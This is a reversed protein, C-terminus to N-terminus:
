PIKTATELGAGVSVQMCQVGPDGTARIVKERLVAEPVDVATILLVSPGAGSLAVGYVGNSGALPLLKPLLPCAEERYPQHLRDRMAAQLLDARGLAFASVLLGTAQINAVADSRRYHDPLLARATVTALSEGPLALFFKWPLGAGAFTAASVVGDEMASVTFGGLLCAAVNDPHGERLCAQELVQQRTLGLEGFHDALLVGALLAAASSGCGMGLPIDNKVDLELAPAGRALARYTHLMLNRELSGVQESDRGSARIRFVHDAAVRAKITLYLGLALGVADFGPGLNASTAPLRMWLPGPGCVEIDTRQV